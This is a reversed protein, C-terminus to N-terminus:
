IKLFNKNKIYKPNKNLQKILKQPDKNLEQLIRCLFVNKVNLFQIASIAALKTEIRVYKTDLNATADVVAQNIVASWLRICSQNDIVVNNQKM